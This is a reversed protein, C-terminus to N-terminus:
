KEGYIREIVEACAPEDPAVEERLAALAELPTTYAFTIREEVSMTKDYFAWEGDRARKLPGLSVTYWLGNKCGLKDLAESFGNPSFQTCYGTEITAGAAVLGRFHAEGFNKWERENVIDEYSM